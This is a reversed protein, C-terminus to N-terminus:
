STRVMLDAVAEGFTPYCYSQGNRSAFYMDPSQQRVDGIPVYARMVLTTWPDRTPLTRILYHMADFHKVSSGLTVHPNVSNQYSLTPLGNM